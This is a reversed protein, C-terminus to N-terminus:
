AGVALAMASETRVRGAAGSCEGIRWSSSYWHLGRWSSCGKRSGRGHGWGRWRRVWGRGLEEGARSGSTGGVRTGLKFGGRGVAVFGAVGEGIGVSSEVRDIAVVDMGVVAGM